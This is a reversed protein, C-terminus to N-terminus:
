EERIKKLQALMFELTQLADWALKDTTTPAYHRFIYLLADMQEETPKWQQQSKPQVRDKLSKLWDREKEFSFRAKTGVDDVDCDEISMKITEIITDIMKKDEESWPKQEYLKKVASIACEHELVGDDTQYGDVKGLTKQLIDVAAYLGDVGYDDGNPLDASKQEDQKERKCRITDAILGDKNSDLVADAHIDKPEGQKELWAIEKLYHKEDNKLMDILSKRIEEDESEKLEPFIENPYITVFGNEDPTCEKIQKLAEDYAKAKEEISLEKM